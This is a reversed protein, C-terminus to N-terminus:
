AINIIDFDEGTISVGGNKTIQFTNEIGVMGFGEIGRKPEIAMVMNEELPDDFGKAVVPYEDIVLGIGHALFKVKNSGYGMFHLDFETDVKSMVEDYIQSPIAGVKLREAVMNQIEVCRKHYDYAIEPIRGVAYVTTKDTHYGNYGCGIDLMVISNNKLINNHSGMLPVAPSVGVIGAPGDFSNYYNGSEGFCINGTLLEANFTGMRTLGQGGRKVMEYFVIAGVEAESIGPKLISPVIKQMVEEHIKGSKKMLDIEYDSKVSRTKLIALDASMINKIGFTKNFREFFGVPVLDKEIHISDYKLNTYNLIDKFSKMQYIFKLPSEIKGRDFSKRIFFYNKGGREIILVGNQMTNTFYFLNVKGFIAAVEWNNDLRSLNRKFREIRDLLESELNM